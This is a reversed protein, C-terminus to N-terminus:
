MSVEGQQEGAEQGCHYRCVAQLTEKPLSQEASAPFLRAKRQGNRLKAVLWVTMCNAAFSEFQNVRTRRSSSRNSRSRGFIRDCCPVMAFQADGVRCYCCPLIRELISIWLTQHKRAARGDNEDRCPDHHLRFPQVKCPSLGDGCDLDTSVSQARPRTSPKGRTLHQLAMRYKSLPNTSGGPNPAVFFRGHRGNSVQWKAM